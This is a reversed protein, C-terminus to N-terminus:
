EKVIKYYSNEIKVLYMGPSLADGVVAESVDTYSLWLKGEPTYVAINSPAALEIKFSSKSPNPYISVEHDQLSTGMGTVVAGVHVHFVLTVKASETASKDYVLAQKITYTQGPICRSPYQGINAVLTNMNLESFLYASAGWTTVQGTHTFWHGPANATSTANLSGDPNVAYY